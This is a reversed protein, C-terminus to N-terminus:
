PFLVEQIGQRAAAEALKRVRTRARAHRVALDFGPDCRDLGGPRTRHCRFCTRQHDALMATLDDLLRKAETVQDRAPRGRTLRAM